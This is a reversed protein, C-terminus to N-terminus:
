ENLFHKLNEIRVMATQSAGADMAKRYWDFAKAPDPEANKNDIRAFYIPDYSRGMALAAEPDGLSVAKQYLIRAEIIDGERMRKNGERILDEVEPRPTTRRQVAEHPASPEPVLNAQFPASAAPQEPKAANVTKTKFTDPASPQVVAVEAPAASKRVIQTSFSPNPAAAQVPASEAAAQAVAETAGADGTSAVAPEPNLAKAHVAFPTKPSLPTRGNSDLLQAELATTEPATEPLNITLGSLRRPPLLWTGGGADVGANLRAGEPVGTISVLLQEFPRQSRISIALPSPRGREAIADAAMVEGSIEAHKEPTMAEERPPQGYGQDDKDLRASAAGPIEVAPQRPGGYILFAALSAAIAIGGIMGIAVAGLLRSSENPATMAGKSIQPIEAPMPFSPEGEYAAEQSAADTWEPARGRYDRSADQASPATRHAAPSGFVEPVHGNVPKSSAYEFYNLIVDQPSLEDKAPERVSDSDWDRKSDQIRSLGGQGGEGYVSVLASQVADALEEHKSEDDDLIRAYEADFANAGALGLGSLSMLESPESGIANNELAAAYNRLSYADAEPQTSAVGGNMHIASQEELSAFEHGYRTGARGHSDEYNSRSSSAAGTQAAKGAEISFDEEEAAGDWGAFFNAASHSTDTEAGSTHNGSPKAEDIDFGAQEFGSMVSRAFESISDEGAEENETEPGVEFEGPLSLTESAPEELPELRMNAAAPQEHKAALADKASQAAEGLDAGLGAGFAEHSEIEPPFPLGDPAGDDVEEMRDPALGFFPEKKASAPPAAEGFAKLVEFELTDAEKAPRDTQEPAHPAPDHMVSAGEKHEDLKNTDQM